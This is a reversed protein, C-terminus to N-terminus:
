VTYLVSNWWFIWSLSKTRSKGLKSALRGSLRENRLSGWEKTLTRQWVTGVAVKYGGEVLQQLRQILWEGPPPPPHAGSGHPGPLMAPDVHRKDAEHAM